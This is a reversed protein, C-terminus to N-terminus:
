ELDGLLGSGKRLSPAKKSKTNTHVTGLKGAGLKGASNGGNGPARNMSPLM